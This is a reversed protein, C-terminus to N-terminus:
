CRTLVSRSNSASGFLHCGPGGALCSWGDRPLFEGAARWTGPDGKVPRGSLRALPTGAREGDGGAPLQHGMQEVHHLQEDDSRPFSPYKIPSLIRRSFAIGQGFFEFSTESQTQNKAAAGLAPFNKLNSSPARAHAGAPKNEGMSGLLGTVARVAVATKQIELGTV